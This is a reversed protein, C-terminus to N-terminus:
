WPWELVCQGPRNRRTYRGEILGVLARASAAHSAFSWTGDVVEVSGCVGGAEAVILAGPVLDWPHVNRQLWVDVRDAALWALELSGSGRARPSAVGALVRQFTQTAGDGPHLYTAMVAHDIPPGAAMRLDMGNLWCGFGRAATFTEGSVPHHIAAVLGGADDELAVASCWFPDGRVFNLTGDIADILWRRAGESRSGEEGVVGDLPRQQALFTSVAAEAEVDARTVVDAPATKTTVEISTRFFRSASEGALTAAHSAVELDTLPTGM